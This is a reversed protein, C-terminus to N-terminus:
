NRQMWRKVTELELRSLEAEHAGIAVEELMSGQLYDVFDFCHADCLAPARYGDSERRQM